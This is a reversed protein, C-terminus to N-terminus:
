LIKGLAYERLKKECEGEGYQYIAISNVDMTLNFDIGSLLELSLKLNEYSSDKYALSSKAVWNPDANQGLHDQIEQQLSIINPSLNWRIHIVPQERVFVGLGNGKIKCSPTISSVETLIGRLRDLEDFTVGSVLMFHPCPSNDSIFSINQENKLRKWAEVAFEKMSGSLEIVVALYKL